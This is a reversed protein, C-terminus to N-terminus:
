VEMGIKYGEYIADIVRRPLNCDGVKHLDKIKGDLADFLTTDSFRWYCTVLTDAELEKDQETYVNRITVKGPAAKKTEYDSVRKVGKNELAMIQIGHTPKDIDYPNSFFLRMPLPM